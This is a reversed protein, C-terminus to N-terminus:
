LCCIAPLSPYLLGSCAYKIVYLNDDKWNVAPLLIECRLFGYSCTSDVCFFAVFMSLLRIPYPSFVAVPRRPRPLSPSFFLFFFLRTILVTLISQCKIDSSRSV